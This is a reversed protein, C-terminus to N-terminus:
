AGRVLQYFRLALLVGRYLRGPRYGLKNLAYHVDEQFERDSVGRVLAYLWILPQASKDTLKLALFGKKCWDYKDSQFVGRQTLHPHARKM